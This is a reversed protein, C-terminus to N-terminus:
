GARRPTAPGLEAELEDKHGAVWGQLREESWGAPPVFLTSSTGEGTSANLGIPRGIRTALELLFRLAAEDSGKVAVVHSYAAEGVMVMPVEAALRELAEVVLGSDPSDVLVRASSRRM